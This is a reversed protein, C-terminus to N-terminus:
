VCGCAVAARLSLSEGTVNAFTYTDGVGNQRDVFWRREMGCAQCTDLSSYRTGGGGYVQGESWDHAEEVAALLSETTKKMKGEESSGPQSGAAKAPQM